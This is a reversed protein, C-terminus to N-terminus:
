DDAGQKKQNLGKYHKRVIDAIEQSLGPVLSQYKTAAEQMKAPHKLFEQAEIMCAHFLLDGMNDGLWTNQNSITLGSPRITARIRANGSAYSQDPTPVVYVFDEDFESYYRPVGLTAEVPAYTVCYEFSRRPCEVWIQSAPNRIFLDNVEIVDSPKAILRDSGSITVQLWQEFLELDLDRLIRTEAKGVFDPLAAVFKPETDEAFSKIADTLSTYTYQISM